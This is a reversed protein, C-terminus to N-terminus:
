KILWDLSHQRWLGKHQKQVLLVSPLHMNLLRNLGSVRPYVGTDLSLITKGRPTFFYILM